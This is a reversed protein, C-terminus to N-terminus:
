GKVGVGRQLKTLEGEDMREMALGCGPHISPLQLLQMPTHDSGGTFVSTVGVDM